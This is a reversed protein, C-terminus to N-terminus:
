KKKDEEFLPALYKRLKFLIFMMFCFNIGLGVAYKYIVWVRESYYQAVYFNLCGTFFFYGIAWFSVERLIDKPIKINKDKLSTEFFWEVVTQKKWFHSVFLLFALFLNIITSKLQFFIPNSLFVTLFGLVYTVVFVAKQSFNLSVGLVKASVILLAQFSMMAITAERFGQPNFGRYFLIGIFVIASLGEILKIVGLKNM